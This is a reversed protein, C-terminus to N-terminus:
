GSTWKLIGQGKNTRGIITSGKADIVKAILYTYPLLYVTRKGNDIEKQINHFLVRNFTLLLKLWLFFNKGRRNQMVYTM